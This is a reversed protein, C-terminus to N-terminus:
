TKIYTKFQTNAGSSYSVSNATYVPTKFSVATNYSYVNATTSYLSYAAYYYSTETCGWCCRSAMHGMYNYPDIFGGLYYCRNRFSVQGSNNWTTVPGLLSGASCRFNVGDYTIGGGYGYYNGNYCRIVSAAQIDFGYTNLGNWCAYITCSCAASLNTLDWSCIALNSMYACCSAYGFCCQGYLNYDYTLVRGNFVNLIYFGPFVINIFCCTGPDFSWMASSPNGDFYNNGACAIGCQVTLYCCNNYNCPIATASPYAGGRRGTQIDGGPHPRFIYNCNSVTDYCHAWPENQGMASMCQYSRNCGCLPCFIAGSPNAGPTYTGSYESHGWHHFEYNFGQYMCTQANASSSTCHLFNCLSYSTCVGCTSTNITAPTWTTLDSSQIISCFYMSVPVTTYCLTNCGFLQFRPVIFFNDCKKNYFVWPSGPFACLGAACYPYAAGACVNTNAYCSASWTTPNFLNGSSDKWGAGGVSCYNGWYGSCDKPVCAVFNNIYLYGPYGSNSGACCVFFSSGGACALCFCALASTGITNATNWTTGADTTYAYYYNPCNNYPDGFLCSSVNSCTRYLTGVTLLARCKGDDVLHPNAMGCSLGHIWSCMVSGNYGHFSYPTPMTYTKTYCGVGCNCNTTITFYFAACANSVCCWCNSVKSTLLSIYKNSCCFYATSGGFACPGANLYQWGNMANITTGSGLGLGPGYGCGAGSTMISQVCSPYCCAWVALNCYGSACIQNLVATLCQYSSLGSPALDPWIYYCCSINDVNAGSSPTVYFESVLNGFCTNSCTSSFCRGLGDLQIGICNFLTPYSSQLYVTDTCVYGSPPCSCAISVITAPLISTIGSLSAGNGYFATACFNGTATLTGSFTGTTNQLATNAVGFAANAVTYGGNATTYGANAVTYGGNATTYGANAVAYGGNATGYAANAVCFGANATGFAQPQEISPLIKWVSYTSDYQYSLGGSTYLQGNTPSSPFDLAM